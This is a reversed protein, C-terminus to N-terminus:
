TRASRSVSTSVCQSEGNSLSSLQISTVHKLLRSRLSTFSVQQFSSSSSFPSPCSAIVVGNLLTCLPHICRCSGHLLTTTAYYFTIPFLLSLSLPNTTPLPLAVFVHSHTDQDQSPLSLLNTKQEIRAAPM